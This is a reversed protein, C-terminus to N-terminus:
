KKLIQAQRYENSQNKLINTVNENLKEARSSLKQAALLTSIKHRATLLTKNKHRLGYLFDFTRILL